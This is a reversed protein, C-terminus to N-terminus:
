RQKAFIGSSNIDSDTVNSDATTINLLSSNDKNNVRLNFAKSHTM